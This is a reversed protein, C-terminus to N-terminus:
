SDVLKKSTVFGLGDIYKHILYMPLSTNYDPDKEMNLDTALPPVTTVKKNTIFSEKFRHIHGCFLNTVQRHSELVKKFDHIRELKLFEYQPKCSSSVDFPPHHMFLATPKKPSNNLLKNLASLSEKQFDGKNSTESTTDMSILRVPYEDVEYLIFTEYLSKIGYKKFAAMMKLKEDKNGPTPYIPHNLAKLLDLTLHYEKKLGHQAIDGTHIVLDPTEVLRNIDEICRQFNKARNLSIENSQDQHILHTDSIQVIIM